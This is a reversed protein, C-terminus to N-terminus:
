KEKEKRKNLERVLSIGLNELNDDADYERNTACQCGKSMTFIHECVYKLMECDKPKKWKSLAEVYNLYIDDVKIAGPAHQYFCNGCVLVRKGLLLAEWGATGTLTIITDARMILDKSEVLPDIIVVNPYFQLKQYFERERHGLVAYHEKVYLKTDAPLSKAIQDIFFLQKEYKEACVLTTAEPQFHLPFLVYKENFDPPIFFPL